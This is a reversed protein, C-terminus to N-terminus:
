AAVEVAPAEYCNRLFSEIAGASERRDLMSDLERMIEPPPLPLSELEFASVAVSGNICRFLQDAVGSNLLACVARLSVRCDDVVPYIMNLHNEIVVASHQNLFSAPLLAAVLRRSQEKATTRQVLVVPERTLLHDQKAKVAFYPQHNRRQYSFRFEGTPLVSEAWILPFRGRGQRTALQAKHRNWVLPGTSVGLGYHALRHPMRSSRHLLDVDLADRPLLWPAHPDAPLRFDGSRVIECLPNLGSPQTTSVSVWDAGAGRVLTVLVTEQLVKDFVGARDAIFDIAVPPADAALLARLNKYYQGGLFSAPTVYGIVGGPRCLQVALHTFLGYLNAHGYLSRSYRSRLEADLTIRGYPPNGIVVDYRSDGLETQLSDATRVVPAVARGAETCYEWLAISLLEDAMWASFADIEVGSVHSEVHDLVESATAGGDRLANAIRVSVGIIFAGAGAAPDLVSHRSWDAGADAAMDLLRDVVPPPTFFVGNGARLEDPILLTYLTSLLYAARPKQMAAYQRGLCLAEFLAGSSVRFSGWPAVLDPADPCVCRRYEAITEAAFTRAFELRHDPEIDRNLARTITRLHRLDNHM